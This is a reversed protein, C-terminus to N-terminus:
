VKKGGHRYGRKKNKELKLAVVSYFDDIELGKMTDMLRIFVDAMEEKFNEKDDKRFAELAESLESHILGIIAPIKYPNDWENPKLCDWGNATNIEVVKSAIGDFTKNLYDIYSREVNDFTESVRKSTEQSNFM